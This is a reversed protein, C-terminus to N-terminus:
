PLRAALVLALLGRWRHVSRALGPLRPLAAANRPPCSSPSISFLPETKTRSHITSHFFGCTVVCLNRSTSLIWSGNISVVRGMVLATLVHNDYEPRSGLRQPTRLRVSYPVAHYQYPMPIWLASRLSGSGSPSVRSNPLLVPVNHDSWQACTCRSTIM